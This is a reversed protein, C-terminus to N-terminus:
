FLSKIKPSYYGLDYLMEEATKIYFGFDLDAPVNLALDMMPKARDSNPVKNGTSIYNITGKEETSYYFRVVKGLYKGDKHAGGRVNRVTLFKRVDKCETVTEIIPKGVTLLAVAAENCIQREPNKSLVSDNASGKESYTGKTKISGDEKIAIYNNVDRSYVAKYRTEETVFSTNHEWWRVIAEYEEFRDQPCKIIIGDTNASVVPIGVSELAEILMLLALQGTVTVQLLLDPSYLCSYRNGLKGFSGNIVIKLSNAVVKNGNHKAELRKDVLGQYVEIFFDGMHAPALNNNLIISPYYSAVDRDLLLTNEDAKHCTKEESSHLGGIGMRYVGNGISVKLDALEKPMEISGSEAVIFPTEMVIRLVENLQPTLFAMWDPKRYPFATGALVAPRKPWRGSIRAIESALVHEAIQADSRSRLDIGFQESMDCRLKLQPALDKYLLITNDLDNICYHKVFNMQEDTLEDNPNFPLDQMKNCHMRGAYTKLSAKLPAVEILDIHNITKPIVLKYEEELQKMRLDNNVIRNSIRKLEEFSTERLAMFLMPMDYSMSNFGVLLYRWVVWDLKELDLKKTASLEFTIVKGIDIHKFAILFYNPYCEIDFILPTFTNNLIEENTMEEYPTLPLSMVYDRDIKINKKSEAIPEDFFM